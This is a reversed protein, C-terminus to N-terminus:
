KRRRLNRSVGNEVTWLLENQKAVFSNFVSGMRYSPCKKSARTVLMYNTKHVDFKQLAAM